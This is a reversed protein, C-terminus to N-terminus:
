VFSFKSQLSIYFINLKKYLLIISKKSLVFVFRCFSFSKAFMFQQFNKSNSNKLNQNISTKKNIAFLFYAIIRSQYLQRFSRVDDNQSFVFNKQYQRLDISKFKERFMCILDDIIFYFKQHKSVFIRFFSISFTFSCNFAVIEIRKSIFNRTILMTAIKACKSTINFIAIFFNSCKSSISEFISVFDFISKSTAFM